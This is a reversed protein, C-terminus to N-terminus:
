EGKKGDGGVKGTLAENIAKRESSRWFPIDKLGRKAIKSALADNKMLRAKKIFLAYTSGTPNFKVAKDMVKEAVESQKVGLFAEFVLGAAEVIDKRFYQETSKRTEKDMKAM